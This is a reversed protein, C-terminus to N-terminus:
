ENISTRCLHFKLFFILILWWIGSARQQVTYQQYGHPGHMPIQTANIQSLMYPSDLTEAMTYMWLALWGFYLPIAALSLWTMGLNDQVCAIATRINSAAYPIRHWVAQIYCVMFLAVILPVLAGLILGQVLLMIAFVLNIVIGFILSQQILTIAHQYMYSLTALTIVPTAILSLLFAWFAASAVRMLEQEDISPEHYNNVSTSGSASAATLFRPSSNTSSVMSWLARGHHHVSHATPPSSFALSSSSSSSTATPLIGTAFLVALLVIVALQVWFIVGFWVDRYEPPQVEGKTWTTADFTDYVNNNTKFKSSDEEQEKYRLPDTVATATPIVQYPQM